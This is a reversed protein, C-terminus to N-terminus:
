ADKLASRAPVRHAPRELGLRDRLMEGDQVPRLLGRRDLEPVVLDVFSDM